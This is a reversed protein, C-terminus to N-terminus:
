SLFLKYLAHVKLLLIYVAQNIVHVTFCFVQFYCALNHKAFLVKAFKILEGFNEAIPMKHMEFTLKSM